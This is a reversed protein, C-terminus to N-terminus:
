GEGPPAPPADLQVQPVPLVTVVRQFTYCNISVWNGTSSKRSLEERTIQYDDCVVQKGEGFQIGMIRGIMAPGGEKDGQNNRDVRPIDLGTNQCITTLESASLAQGLKMEAEVQNALQRVFTLDVNTARAKIETHGDLLPAQGLLNQVIWDSVQAWERFDHRTENTRPKGAAAWAEVVAFIAGLLVPHFKFCFALMDMGDQQKFQYNERKHIRIISSRNALDKTAEFGNSSVCIMHKSPDINVPPQFPIRAPVPGDATLLAELFQSDLKGRVNDIQIFPCGEILHKQLTEELSGVGGNLKTVVAMQQNHMAANLKQRYSKGAQSANAEAIDIPVPGNIWGGLKLTPTIMSALARSKDSPTAFDYDQLVGELFNKAEEFSCPEVRKSTQVFFGTAADYGNQVLHPRGDRQVLLPCRLLGSIKPLNNACAESAMYQRATAESIVTPEMQFGGDKIKKPKMFQAYKEFRSQMAVADLIKLSALEGEQKVEVVVGGRDFLKLKPAIIKFLAEASDSISMGGGPVRVQPKLQFPVPPLDEDPPIPPNM